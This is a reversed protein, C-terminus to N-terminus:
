MGSLLYSNTARVRHNYLTHATTTYHLGFPCHGNFLVHVVVVEIRNLEEMNWCSDEIDRRVMEDREEDVFINNKESDHMEDVEIALAIVAFPVVIKKPM